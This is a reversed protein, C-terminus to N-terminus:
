FGEARARERLMEAFLVARRVDNVNTSREAIADLFALGDYLEKGYVPLRFLRKDNARMGKTVLGEISLDYARPPSNAKDSPSDAM